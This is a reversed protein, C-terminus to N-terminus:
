VIAQYRQVFDAGIRRLEPQLRRGDVVPHDLPLPPRGEREVVEVWSVLRPSSTRARILTRDSIGPSHFDASVRQRATLRRKL